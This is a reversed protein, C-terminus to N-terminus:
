QSHLLEFFFLFCFVLFLFWKGLKLFHTFDEHRVQMKENFFGSDIWFRINLQPVPGEVEGNEDVYYWMPEHIINPAVRELYRSVYFLQLLQM